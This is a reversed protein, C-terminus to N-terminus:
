SGIESQLNCIASKDSSPAQLKLNPAALQAIRPMDALPVWLDVEPFRRKLRAGYREVLCGAVVVRKSSSGQKLKLAEQIAAESERVASQIFACTTIVMLGAADPSTTLAYGAETLAGLVQESDVQNKPCGLFVLCASLPQSDATLSQPRARRM